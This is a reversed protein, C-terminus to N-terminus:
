ASDDLNKLEIEPQPIIRTNGLDVVKSRMLENDTFIRSM